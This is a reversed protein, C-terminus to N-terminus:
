QQVPAEQATSEKALKIAEEISGGQTLQEIKEINKKDNALDLEGSEIVLLDSFFHWKASLERLFTILDNQTKLLDIKWLTFTAIEGLGSEEIFGQELATISKDIIAKEIEKKKEETFEM